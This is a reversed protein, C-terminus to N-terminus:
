CPTATTTPRHRRRPLRQRRLPHHRQRRRGDLRRVRRTYGSANVKVEDVFELVASQGSPASMSRATIDTGDMYWINETGTAGDVSLGGTM